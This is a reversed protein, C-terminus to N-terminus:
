VNPKLCIGQPYATMECSSNCKQLSSQEFSMSVRSAVAKHDRLQPAIWNARQKYKDVEMMRLM